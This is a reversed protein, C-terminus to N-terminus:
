LRTPVVKRAGTMHAMADRALPPMVTRARRRMHLGVKMLTFLPAAQPKM